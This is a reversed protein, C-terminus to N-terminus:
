SINPNTNANITTATIKSILEQIQKNHQQQQLLIQQHQERIHQQQERMHQQQELMQQQHLESQNQIFQHQLKMADRMEKSDQILKIVLDNSVLSTSTSSGELPDQSQKGKCTKKHKHLSQRQKYKKGCVCGYEGMKISTTTLRIHKATLLHKDFNSKWCCSFDCTECKFNKNIKDTMVDTNMYITTVFVETLILRM